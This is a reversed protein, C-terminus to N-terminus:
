VCRKSATGWVRSVPGLFGESSPLWFRAKKLDADEMAKRVPGM